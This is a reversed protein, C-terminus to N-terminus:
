YKKENGCLKGLHDLDPNSRIAPNTTFTPDTSPTPVPLNAPDSSLPTHHKSVRSTDDFNKLTEAAKSGAAVLSVLSVALFLTIIRKV